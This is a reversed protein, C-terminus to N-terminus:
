VNQPIPFGLEFATGSEFDTAVDLYRGNRRFFDRVISLSYGHESGHTSFGPEFIIKPDQSWIGGGSDSVRVTLYNGATPSGFVCPPESTFVSSKISLTLIRKKADKMVEAANQLLIGLCLWLDEAEEGIELFPIDDLEISVQVAANILVDNWHALADQILMLVDGPISHAMGRQNKGRIQMVMDIAQDNQSKLQDLIELAEDNGKLMMRLMQVGGSLSLFRNNLGHIIKGIIYNNFAYSNRPRTSLRHVLMESLAPVICPAPDAPDVISVMGSSSADRGAGLCCSAPHLLHLRRWELESSPIADGCLVIMGSFGSPHIELFSDLTDWERVNCKPIPMSTFWHALEDLGQISGIIAVDMQIPEQNNKM